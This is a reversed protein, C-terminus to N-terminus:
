SLCVSLYVSLRVSLCVYLYVSLYLFVLHIPFLQFFQSTTNGIDLLAATNTTQVASQKQFLVAVMTEMLCSVALKTIWVPVGMLAIFTSTNPM